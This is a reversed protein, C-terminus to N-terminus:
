ETIGTFPKAGLKDYLEDIEIIIQNLGESLLMYTTFLKQNEPSIQLYEESKSVGEAARARLRLKDIGSLAEYDVGTMEQFLQNKLSILRERVEILHTMKERGLVAEQFAADFAAQANVVAQTDTGHTSSITTTYEQWISDMTEQRVSTRVNLIYEAMTLKLEEIRNASAGVGQYKITDLLFQTQGMLSLALSPRNWIDLQGTVINHDLVPGRMRPASMHVLEKPTVNEIKSNLHTDLFGQYLKAMEFLFRSTPEFASKMWWHQIESSTGGVTLPVSISSLLDLANNYIRGSHVWPRLLDKATLTLKERLTSPDFCNAEFDQSQFAILRPLSLKAKTGNNKIGSFSVKKNTSCLIETFVNSVQEDGFVELLSNLLEANSSSRTKFSSADTSILQTTEKALCVLPLYQCELNMPAPVDKHIGTSSYEKLSHLALETLKRKKASRVTLNAFLDQYPTKFDTTAPSSSRPELSIIKKLDVSLSSALNELLPMVSKPITPHHSLETDLANKWLILSYLASHDGSLSYNKKRKRSKVINEIINKSLKYKQIFPGIKGSWGFVAEQLPNLLVKQRYRKAGYNLNKLSSMLPDIYENHCEQQYEGTLSNFSVVQCVESSLIYPIQWKLKQNEKSATTITQLSKNVYGSTEFDYYMRSFPNRLIEDWALFLTFHGVNTVVFVVVGPVGTLVTLNKAIRIGKITSVGYKKFLALAKAQGGLLRVNKAISACVKSTKILWLTDRCTLLQQTVTAGITATIMSMSGATFDDWFDEVHLFHTYAEKCPVSALGEDKMLQICQKWSPASLFHHVVQSLLSGGAMGIYGFFPTLQKRLQPISNTKGIYRASITAIKMLSQSTYRNGIMFFYFGVWGKWDVLHALFDDVCTPSAPSAILSLNSLSAANGFCSAAQVAMLASSFKLYEPGFQKFSQLPISKFDFNNFAKLIEEDTAQSLKVLHDPQGKQPFRLWEEGRHDVVISAETGSQAFSFSPMLINFTFILLAAKLYKNFFTNWM